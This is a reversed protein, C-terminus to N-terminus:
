TYFPYNKDKTPMSTSQYHIDVEHIFPDPVAGGSVTMNNAALEIRVEIIGDVELDDTDLETASPSPDSLKVETIMHQYQTTSATGSVVSGTFPASFPAQDYGKAYAVEYDFTLTGGTVLTGTHSWHFHIYIDTGPVYDHPLHFTYFEEDGASFQFHQLTGRYTTHTPKSAGPNRSAVNGLLDHFGFTPTTTDVKIGVNTTKPLIVNGDTDIEVQQSNAIDGLKLAGTSTSGVIIGGINLENSVGVASASINYGIIINTSGTTLNAGASTGFLVNNSGTTLATGALTGVIANADCGASAIAIERGVAVNSSSNNSMAYFAKHGIITNFNNGTRIGASGVGGASWGIVINYGGTSNKRWANYGIITNEWGTSTIDYGAHAGISVTDVPPTALGCAARGIITTRAAVLTGGAAYGIIVNSDSGTLSGAVGSGILVNQDGSALVDGAEFGVLVNDVGTTIAAGANKGVFVNTDVNSSLELSNFTPAVVNAIFTTIGTTAEISIWNNDDTGIFLDGSTSPTFAWYNTPDDVNAGNYLRLIGGTTTSNGLIDLSGNANDNVGIEVAGGTFSLVGTGGDYKIMDTDTNPGILLDDNSVQIYYQTITANANDPVRLDIYGGSGTAHGYLLLYGNTTDAVGAELRQKAWVRGLYHITSVAVVSNYPMFEAINGSGNSAGAKVHIGEGWSHPNYFTAAPGSNVSAAVQLRGGIGATGDTVSVVGTVSCELSRIGSWGEVRLAYTDAPNSGGAKIYVGKQWTNPSEFTAVPQSSNTDGYVHLAGISAGSGIWVHENDTLVNISGASTVIDDVVEIGGAGSIVVADAALELDKWTSAATRSYIFCKGDNIQYFQMGHTTTASNNRLVLPYSNADDAAFIVTEAGTQGNDTVLLRPNGPAIGIGVGAAVNLGGAGTFSWVGTDGAHKLSDTDTDPGIHLDDEFSRFTYWNIVDDYAGGVISYFAGGIAATPHAEAQFYGAVNNALGSSVKGNGFHVAQDGGTLLIM